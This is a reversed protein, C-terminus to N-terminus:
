INEKNNKKFFKEYANIVKRYFFKVIKKDLLWLVLFYVIIGLFIKLLLVLKNDIMLAGLVFYNFLMLVVSAILIAKLENFVDLLSLGIKKVAISLIPLVGVIGVLTYSFVMGKIGYLFIGILWAPILILNFILTTTLGVKSSGTSNFIIGNLSLVSQFAGLVSLMQILPIAELWKNGLFVFVFERACSSFGFMLPFTVFAIYKVVVLYYNRLGEKDNQMSSFAPFLVKSFISSINTIPLMMLSYSRTYLGLTADGLFKGVILNDVNRTLYGLINTGAVGSGYGLMAKLDGYSLFLLPKWKSTFWLCLSNVSSQVLTQAVLSMVGYGKFALYFAVLYSIIMSIWSAYIILKFELKKTLLANQLSTLSYIIISLSVIRTLFTVRPENYFDALVPALFYFILYIFISTLLNFWFVSSLKKRNLDQFYIVSSSFGFDVFVNAFSSFITVMGILGYAKPGILRALYIGFWVFILQSIIKNLLNWKLGSKVKISIGQDM